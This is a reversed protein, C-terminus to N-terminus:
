AKPGVGAVLDTLTSVANTIRVEIFRTHIPFSTGGPKRELIETGNIRIQLGLGAPAFKVSKGLPKPIRPSWLENTLQLIHKEPNKLGCWIEPAAAKTPTPAVKAGMSQAPEAAPVSTMRARVQEIPVVEVVRVNSERFKMLMWIGLLLAIVCLAPMLWSRKQGAHHDTSAETAHHNGAERASMEKIAKTVASGIWFVIAIGLAAFIFFAPNNLPNSLNENLIRSWLGVRAEVQRFTLTEPSAKFYYAFPNLSPFLHAILYLLLVVVMGAQALRSWINKYARNLWIASVGLVSLVLLTVSPRPLAAYFFFGVAEIVLVFRVAEMYRGIAKRISEMLESGIGRVERLIGIPSFWQYWRLDNETTRANATGGSPTTLTSIVSGLPAAMLGLAASLILGAIGGMAVLIRWLPETGALWSVSTSMEYTAIGLLMFLMPIAMAFLTFRELARLYPGATAPTVVGIWRFGQGIGSLLLKFFRIIANM